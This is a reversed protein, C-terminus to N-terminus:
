LFLAKEAMQFYSHLHDVMETPSQAPNLFDWSENALKGGFVEILSEPLPRIFRKVKGCKQQKMNSLPTAAVGSHDSPKGKNPNDPQVPPVIQPEDYFCHLNSLIVYLVKFGHTPKMVMQRLSPDISLLAQISISNRDGSIVVGANPYTTLLSQLTTPLHSLLAANKKSNPPSYFCCVIIVSIKGTITIPKLLGWVIEVAGPTPINLKTIKFKDRRVAIAAGGGRKAGPRPTSIYQIGKMHLLEELKFQHKKNELKEWVETLFGIDSERENMDLAFNNLKPILLRM